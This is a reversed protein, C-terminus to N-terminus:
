GFPFGRADRRSDTYSQGDFILREFGIAEPSGRFRQQWLNHSIIAVPPAGPKDEEPLFMRGLGVNVGLVSFLDASMDLGAIYEAAGPANVTGSHMTWAAMDLSYTERKCDLYNPYTFTWLNGLPTSWDTQEMLTVLRSPDRYAFPKLLVGDIV